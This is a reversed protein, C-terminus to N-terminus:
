GRALLIRTLAHRYVFVARMSWGAVLDLLAGAPGGPGVHFSVEDSVWTGRRGPTFTHVHDFRAMPGSLSTDAFRANEVREVLRVQWALPTWSGIGYRFELLSGPRPPAPEVAVLRVRAPPPTLRGLNGPDDFFAFVREIPADVWGRARITPM